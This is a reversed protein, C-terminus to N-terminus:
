WGHGARVKKVRDEKPKIVTGSVDIIPGAADSSAAAMAPLEVKITKKMYIQM